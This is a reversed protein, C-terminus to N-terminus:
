RTVANPSILRIAVYASLREDVRDIKPMTALISM